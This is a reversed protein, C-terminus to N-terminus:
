GTQLTLCDRINIYPLHNKLTMALLNATGIGNGCVLLVSLKQKQMLRKREVAAGLHITLYGIEDETFRIGLEETLRDAAKHAVMYLSQYQEQIQGLLPNTLVIGFRAREIAPQLHMALNYILEDDDQYIDGLWVQAQEVFRRSLKLAHLNVDKPGGDGSKDAFLYIRSHLLERILYQIEGANQVGKQFAAMVQAIEMALNTLTTGENGLFSVKQSCTLEKGAQLRKVQVALACIMRNTSADNELIGHKKMLAIFRAAIDELPLKATYTQFAGQASQVPFKRNIGYRFDYDAKAFIHIYMDRISQESGSISIGAGRKSEYVLGRAEILEQVDKLDALLTNRSISLKEAIEDIAHWGDALLELIIFDRREKPSLFETQLLPQKSDDADTELWVGYRAKRCLRVGSDQLEDTLIDLDYHVTRVSVHLLEALNKVTLPTAAITARLAKLLERRRECGDINM